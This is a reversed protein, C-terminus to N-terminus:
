KFKYAIDRDFEIVKKLNHFNLLENEIFRRDHGFVEKSHVIILDVGLKKLYNLGEKTPFKIMYNLLESYNPPVFGSWGNVLKKWHYTSYYM